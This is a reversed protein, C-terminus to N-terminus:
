VDEHVDSSKLQHQPQDDFVMLDAFKKDFERIGSNQEYGGLCGQFFSARPSQMEEKYRECIDKHKCDDCWRTM